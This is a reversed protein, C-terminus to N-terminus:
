RRRNYFNYEDAENSYRQQPTTTAATTGGGSWTGLGGITGQPSMRGAEGFSANRYDPINRSSPMMSYPSYSNNVRGFSYPNSSGGRSIPGEDGGSMMSNLGNGLGMLGGAQSDGRMKTYGAAASQGSLYNNMAANNAASQQSGLDGGLGIMAMANADMGQGQSFMGQGIAIERERQRQAQEFSNSRDMADQQAFARAFGYGDPSMMGSDASGGLAEGGVRLGQTGAGFMRNGLQTAEAMRSDAGLSRQRNYMDSAMDDYNGGARNLADTGLGFMQEQQARYRPDMSYSANGDKFSASGAGSTVGFPKYKGERAARDAADSMRDQAEGYKRQQQYAGVGGLLTSAIMGFLSM